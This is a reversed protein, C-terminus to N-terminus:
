RSAGAKGSRRWIPRCKAACSRTAITASSGSPCGAAAIEADSAGTRLLNRLDWGQSAFLCLYLQGETSLHATATAASLTTVSSIVGVEGLQPDYQGSADAYGWRVATEGPTSPALPILPAARRASASHGRGLPLVEDMRWGNTAGVDMYEIFRLTIGTGRFYRAMPLIQDDNTGRKVVM